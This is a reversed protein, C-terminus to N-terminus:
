EVFSLRTTRGAPRVNDGPLKRHIGSDEKLEILARDLEIM